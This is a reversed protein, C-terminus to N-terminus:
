LEVYVMDSDAAYAAGSQAVIRLVPSRPKRRAKAIHAPKAWQTPLLQHQTIFEGDVM